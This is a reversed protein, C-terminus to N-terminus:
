TPERLKYREIKGTATTPLSAVFEILHPVEYRHLTRACHERLEDALETTALEEDRVTVFAKGKTFGEVQVGVVAAELVAEHEVLRAEVDAPSVWLGSVKFMDDARGEYWYRGDPDRRYRDRSYFWGDRICDTTREPQNWYERLM